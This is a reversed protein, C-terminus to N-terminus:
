PAAILSDPTLPTEQSTPPPNQLGLSWGGGEKEGLTRCPFQLLDGQHPSPYPSGRTHPPGTGGWTSVTTPAHPFGHEQELLRTGLEQKERGWSRAAEALQSLGLGSQSNGFCPPWLHGGWGLYGGNFPNHPLSM